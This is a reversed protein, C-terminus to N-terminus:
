VDGHNDAVDTNRHYRELEMIRKCIGDLLQTMRNSVKVNMDEVNSELYITPFLENPILTEGVEVFMRCTATVKSTDLYEDIMRTLEKDALTQANDIRIKELSVFLARWKKDMERRRGLGQYASNQTKPFKELFSALKVYEALTWGEQSTIPEVRRQLDDLQRRRKVSDGKLRKKGLEKRISEYTQGNRTVGYNAWLERLHKLGFLALYQKKASDGLRLDRKHIENLIGIVVRGLSGTLLEETSGNRKHRVVATVTLVVGVIAIGISGWFLGRALRENISYRTYPLIGFVITMAVGALVAGVGGRGLKGLRQGIGELGQRVGM